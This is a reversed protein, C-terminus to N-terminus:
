EYNVSVTFTAAYTGAPQNAAVALNGGVKFTQNGLGDLTASPDVSMTNLSMTNGSGDSLIVSTPDPTTISFSTNPEGTVAFQAPMRTVGTVLEVGGSVSIGGGRGIHVVGATTTPAIIGFQWADIEAIAIPAIFTAGANATVDAAQASSLSFLAVAAVITINRAPNLNKM